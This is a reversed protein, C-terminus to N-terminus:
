SRRCRRWLAFCGLSVGAFLAYTRPEPIAALGVSDILSDYAANGPGSSFQIRYTGISAPFVLSAAAWAGQSTALTTSTVPVGVSDLVSVVHSQTGGSVGSAHVWSLEYMGASPISVEQYVVIPLHPGGIDM